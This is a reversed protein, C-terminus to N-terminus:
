VEGPIVASGVSSSGESLQAEDMHCYYRKGSGTVRWPPEVDRCIDGLYKPCRTHFPCGAPVEVASPLDGELLVADQSSITQVRPIASILAETYPHHPPTFMEGAESVEMLRGLYMVAIVDAFYGVVSLDHSIFLYTGGSRSQLNNLLNLITAQVSVDLSSVPEDAAVMMPHTAFARAIAVRQKEGGSLQGPLKTAYEEPLQVSNLLRLVEADADQRRHGGLRQLPRRLTEGVTLNPNLSENPNQFVMQIQRITKIDRRGINEPLSKGLFQITGGEREVLGMVARAFTTKGSGSEGVLGLTQGQAIELTVNDVAHVATAPQGSIAQGVTRPLPFSVKLDDAELVPISEALPDPIGEVRDELWEITVEERWVEEWRHCRSSRVNDISLLEPHQHCIEIAIPCRSRFACGSLSESLTPMRGEMFKLPANSKHDGPVPISYLLGRTYPHLPLQFLERKSAQEVIEGAYLVSIQDCVQAVVGMNHTVYLASTSSEALLEVLLELVSAQTTVDLNTTPEDLVLLKPKSSLAIAILVRQQMGGSIQHPYSAAVRGPDPLRVQHFLEVAADEAQTATLGQHARMGEALQEGVRLSPNLSSEPDQPIYAIERGWIMRMEDQNLETLDRDDFCIRGKRIEGESPLYRLITLALTTKGSGSEGVLGHVEGAQVELSVDQLVDWVYGGQRYSVTLNEVSLLPSSGSNMM